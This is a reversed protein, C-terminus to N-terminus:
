LVENLLSLGRIFMMRQRQPYGRHMPLMSIFLLGEIFRIDNPDYDVNCVIHDFGTAVQCSTSNAYIQGVFEGETQHLEFMDALIYDYLGCVSHRLKAIDYRADGYIGKCGFSGRPDILRVIQNNVDFLINSFCFDGHIVYIPASEALARAKQCLAEGLVYVNQLVDGNFTIKDRKLLSEWSPDQQRLAELRQWTKDVYISAVAEPELKGSFRCFEQHIRMIHRLISSWTDSPLEGYVYLEALTPYGYYEEVIELRGNVRRHSLIRPTLVRLEDPLQLYWDLEDQLKQDYESVKTITNLIPNIFLSNFSRPQLLRRRAEVLNDIHGFDYWQQVPRAQIPYVTGYRRLVGSLDPEGHSASDEVCAQLHAGHLLHYYGALALKPDLATEQKDIYGVVRGNAATLALCWRRADEVHSVYVFDEAGFYADRILTDGLIVRVLGQTPSCHLGAQLSQVITGERQLLATTLDMREAYAWHLFNQMREDQERLVVTVQRIDKILLDDLIWGIVPKGNIPIM